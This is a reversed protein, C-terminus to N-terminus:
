KKMALMDKMSMNKSFMNAGKDGGGLAKLDDKSAGIITVNSHNNKNVVEKGKEVAEIYHVLEDPDELLHKPLTNFDIKALVSRFYRAFNALKLQFFTFNVIPKGFFYYINDECLSYYSVFFDQISLRKLNSDSIV